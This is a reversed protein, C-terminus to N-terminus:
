YATGILTGKGPPLAALAHTQRESGELASTLISCLRLDMMVRASVAKGKGVTLVEFCTTAM